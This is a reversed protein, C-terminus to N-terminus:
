MRRDIFSAEGDRPRPPTTRDFRQSRPGLRGRRPDLRRRPRAARGRAPTQVTDRSRSGTGARDRRGGQSRGRVPVEVTAATHPEARGPLPVWRPQGAPERPGLAVLRLRAGRLNGRLGARVWLKGDPRPAAEARRRARLGSVRHSGAVGGLGESRTGHEVHIFWRPGDRRSVFNESGLRRRSSMASLSGLSPPARCRRQGSSPETQPVSHRM